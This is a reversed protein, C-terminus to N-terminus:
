RRSTRRHNFNLWGIWLHNIYGGVVRGGDVARPWVGAIRRHIQGRRGALLKGITKDSAKAIAEAYGGGIRQETIDVPVIVVIMMVIMIVIAVATIRMVAIVNININIVEILDGALVTGIIVLDPLMIRGVAVAHGVGIALKGAAIM